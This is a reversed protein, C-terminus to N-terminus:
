MKWGTQKALEPTSVAFHTGDIAVLYAENIQLRKVQDFADSAARLNILPSDQMSIMWVTGIVFSVSM